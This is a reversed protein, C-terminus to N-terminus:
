VFDLIPRHVFCTHKPPTASPLVLLTRIDEHLDIDKLFVNDDEWDVQSVDMPYTAGDIELVFSEFTVVRHFGIPM